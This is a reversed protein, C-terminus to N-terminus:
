TEREEDFAKKLLQLEKDIEGPKLGNVSLVYSFEFAPNILYIYNRRDESPISENEFQRMFNDISAATTGMSIAVSPYKEKLARLGNHSAVNEIVLLTQAQRVANLLALRHQCEDECPSSAFALATWQDRFFTPSIPLQDM